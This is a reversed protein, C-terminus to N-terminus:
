RRAYEVGATWADLYAHLEGCRGPLVSRPLCEPWRVLLWREAAAAANDPARLRDLADMVLGVHWAVGKGTHRRDLDDNAGGGFSLLPAYAPILDNLTEEIM